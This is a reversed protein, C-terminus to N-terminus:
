GHWVGMLFITWGITYIAAMIGMTAGVLMNKITDRNM